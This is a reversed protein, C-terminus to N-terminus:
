NGCNDKQKVHSKAGNATGANVASTKQFVIQLKKTRVSPSGAQTSPRPNAGEYKLAFRATAIQISIMTPLLRPLLLESVKHTSITIM